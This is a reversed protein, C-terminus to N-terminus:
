FAVISDFSKPSPLLMSTLVKLPSTRRRRGALAFPFMENLLKLPLKSLSRGTVKFLLLLRLKRPDNFPPPEPSKRSL